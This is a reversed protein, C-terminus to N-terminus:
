SGAKPVLSLASLRRTIDLTQVGFPNGYGDVATGVYHATMQLLGDRGYWVRVFEGPKQSPWETRIRWGRFEGAPLSLTEFAEATQNVLPTVPWSKSPALPYRLRYSEGELIGADATGSSLAPSQLALRRIGADQELLGALSKRYANAMPESIGAPRRDVSSSASPSESAADTPPLFIYYLGGQDQRDLFRTESIGQVDREVVYERGLYQQTGILDVTYPTTSVWPEWPPQGDPIIQQRIQYEYDWHNGVDLPYFPSSSVSEIPGPHIAASQNGIPDLSGTLRNCGSAAIVALWGLCLVHLRKRRKM